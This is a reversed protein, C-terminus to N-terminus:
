GDNYQAYDDCCDDCGDMSCITVSEITSWDKKDAIFARELQRISFAQATTDWHGYHRCLSCFQYEYMIQLFHRSNLLDRASGLLSHLQMGSRESNLWKM